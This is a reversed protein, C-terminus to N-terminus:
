GAASSAHRAPWGAGDLRAAVVPRTGAGHEPRPAADAGALDYAGSVAAALVDDLAADTGLVEQGRDVLVQPDIVGFQRKRVEGAAGDRHDAVAFRNGFQVSGGSGVHRDRLATRPVLGVARRGAPHRSPGCSSAWRRSAPQTRAAPNRKLWNM